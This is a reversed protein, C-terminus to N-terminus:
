LTWSILVCDPTSQKVIWHDSLIQLVGLIMNLYLYSYFQTTDLFYSGTKFGHIFDGTILVTENNGTYKYHM